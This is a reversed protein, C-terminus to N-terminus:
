TLIICMISIGFWQHIRVCVCTHINTFTSIFTFTRIHRYKQFHIYFICAYAHMYMCYLCICIYEHIQMCIHVTRNLISFFVEYSFNSLPSVSGLHLINQLKLKDWSSSSTPRSSAATRADCCTSNSALPPPSASPFTCILLNLLNLRIKHPTAPIVIFCM